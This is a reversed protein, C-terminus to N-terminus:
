DLNVTVYSSSGGRKVLFTMSSNDKKDKLLAVLENTDEIAEKDLEKILDGKKLGAKQAPSNRMVSIIIVGDRDSIKYYEATQETIDVIAIGLQRKDDSVDNSRSQDDGPMEGVTIKKSVTKGNHILTFSVQTGPSLSAVKKRLSDIDTIEKSNFKIIIDGKTIGAKDAPSNKVVGAVYAGKKRDIDLEKAQGDTLALIQMGMWGRIVKGNKILSTSIAHVQNSPIAFGLGDSGGSRSYIATNIGILKGEIDVLAGGSNGPNIAADTQILEEYDTVGINKRKVASVIGMTVSHSLGYANGIAIAVQGPVIKDSDALTIVPLDSPVDGEIKIVALDTSSDAGVVTCDFEREDYLAIRINSADKIVHNNTVIFGKKSIIVGSGLAKIKEKNSFLSNSSTTTTISVVTPLVKSSVKKLDNNLAVLSDASFAPLWICILFLVFLTIVIKSHKIIM